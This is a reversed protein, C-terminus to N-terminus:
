ADGEQAQKAELVNMGAYAAVFGDAKVVHMGGPKASLYLSFKAGAARIAKEVLGGDALAAGVDVREAPAAFSTEYEGADDGSTVRVRGESWRLWVGRTLKTVGLKAYRLAEAWPRPDDVTFVGHKSLDIGAMHEHLPFPKGNIPVARVTVDGSRAVVRREDVGLEVAGALRAVAAAGDPPLQACFDDGACALEVVAGEKGSQACVRVFGGSRSVQVFRMRETSHECFPLVREIAAQLWGDPLSAWAPADADFDPPQSLDLRAVRARHGPGELTVEKTSFRVEVKDGTFAALADALTQSDLYASAGKAPGDGDVEVRVSAEHGHGTLVAGDERLDLALSKFWAHPSRASACKAAHAAAAALAQRDLSAKM